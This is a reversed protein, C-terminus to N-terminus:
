DRLRWHESDSSLSANVSCSVGFRASILFRDDLALKNPGVDHPCSSADNPKHVDHTEIQRLPMANAVDQSPLLQQHSCQVCNM